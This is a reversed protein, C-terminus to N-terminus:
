FNCRTESAYAIFNTVREHKINSYFEPIPRNGKKNYIRKFLIAFICFTGIEHIGTCAM